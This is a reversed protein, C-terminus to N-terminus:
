SGVCLGSLASILIKDLDEKWLPSEVPGPTSPKILLRVIPVNIRHLPGDSRASSLLDSPDQTIQYRHFIIELRHSIGPQEGHLLSRVRRACSDRECRRKWATPNIVARPATRSYPRVSVARQQLQQTEIPKLLGAAVARTFRQAVLWSKGLAQSVGHAALLLPQNEGGWPIWVGIAARHAGRTRGPKM